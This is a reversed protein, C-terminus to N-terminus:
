HVPSTPPAGAVNRATLFLVSKLQFPTLWPHKSLILACLGSIHAAALSNGSSRIQRGNAWAVPVGVGRGLFEVPPSPNYYHLLPDPEDHSAVSLVSAFSWPFSPVALNHASVVLLCRRFYARDALKYLPESFQLRTTAVSLNIVNFGEEIAWELGALLARGTGATADTLIRMSSLSVEPAISRIIGGCATGHGTTDMAPVPVVRPADEEFAVAMARDVAGIMPHSADIGSDLICVRVGAGRANQWAWQPTVQGLSSVPFPALSVRSTPVGCAPIGPYQVSTQLRWPRNAEIDM